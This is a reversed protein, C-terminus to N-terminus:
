AAIDASAWLAALEARCVTLTDSLEGDNSVRTHFAYDDLATESEHDLAALAEPTPEIGDRARMRDVQTQRTVDLRQLTAGAARPIDVDPLFRGGTTIVSAGQAILPLAVLAAKRAWYDKDNATRWDGGLEQLVYRTGVTRDLPTLPTTRGIIEPVLREVIEAAHAEPLLMTHATQEVMSQHRAGRAVMDNLDALAPALDDRMLDGYRPMHVPGTLADTLAPAVTDKGAFMKGSVILWQHSGVSLNHLATGYQWLDVRLRASLETLNQLM